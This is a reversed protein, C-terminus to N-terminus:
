TYMQLTSRKQLGGDIRAPLECASEGKDEEDM